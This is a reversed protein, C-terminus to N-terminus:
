RKFFRGFLSPKEKTLEILQQQLQEQGTALQDVKSILATVLQQQLVSPLNETPKSTDTPEGANNGLAKTAAVRLHFDAWEGIGRREREAAKTVLQRTEISVGRLSWPGQEKRKRPKQQTQDPDDGVVRLKTNNSTEMHVTTHQQIGHTILPVVATASM